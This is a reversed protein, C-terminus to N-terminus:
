LIILKSKKKPAETVENFFVSAEIDLTDVSQTNLQKENQVVIRPRKAIRRRELREARREARLAARQRARISQVKFVDMKAVAMLTAIWCICSTISLYGGSAMQCRYEHCLDTDFFIMSFSQLLYSLLFGAAVPRLNISEWVVSTSLVVSLAMGLFSGLTFLSRSFNYKWDEVEKRSFRIIKCGTLNDPISENYCLQVRIMGLERIPEYNETIVLPDRLNVFRTSQRTFVACTCGTWAFLLALITWLKGHGWRNIHKKPTTRSLDPDSYKNIENSPKEPSEIISDSEDVMPGTVSTIGEMSTCFDVGCAYGFLNTPADDLGDSKCEMINEEESKKQNRPFRTFRSTRESQNSTEVNSQSRSLFRPFSRSKTSAVPPVVAAGPEGSQGERIDQDHVNPTSQSSKMSKVTFSPSQFFSRTKKPEIPKTNFEDNTSMVKAEDEEGNEEIDFSKAGVSCSSSSKESDTNREEELFGLDNLFSRIHEMNGIRNRGSNKSACSPSFGCCYSARTAGGSHFPNSPNNTSVFLYILRFSPFATM